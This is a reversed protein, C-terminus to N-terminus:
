LNHQMLRPWRREGKLTLWGLLPLLYLYVAYPIFGADTMLITAPVLGAINWPILPSIVVVTNELDLALNAAGTAADQYKTRVLDQTLLIAITQTCGFAAAATGILSTTLFRQSPSPDHPLWRKVISLCQTGAFLGVFATSLIVVLSVRAMSLLGGGSLILDLSTGSNLQFGTLTFMGLQEPAYSQLTLAIAGACVTSLLMSRKVEVRLLALGLILVAPLLTLPHLNFLTAMQETFARDLQIPYCWSLGGYILLTLGLPLLSSRWMGRINTLLRTATVSAVLHASSSMPSCRDGVYAGAIIAGAILHRNAGSGSAMIMLAIGVTGVAGFSTGILWSVLGTLVFAALIFTRPQILQVGYYVLAPVTGAAIWVAVLAGIPLLVSLVPFSQRSGAIAMQLLANWGFGRRRLMVLVLAMAVLLPYAVFVGRLVSVVLLGFSLLLAFVIDM